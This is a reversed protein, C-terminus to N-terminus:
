ITVIGELEFRLPKGHIGEQVHAAAWLVLGGDFPKVLGVPPLNTKINVGINLGVNLAREGEPGLAM